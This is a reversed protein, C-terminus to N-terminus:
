RFALWCGECIGLGLFPPSRVGAVAFALFAHALQVPRTCMGAPLTVPPPHQLAPMPMPQTAAESEHQRPFALAPVATPPPLQLRGTPVPMTAQSAPQPPQSVDSVGESSGLSPEHLPGVAPAPAEVAANSPPAAM